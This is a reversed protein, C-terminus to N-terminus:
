KSFSEDEYANTVLHLTETTIPKGKKAAPKALVGGVKEIEHSTGVLYEFVNFCESCYM